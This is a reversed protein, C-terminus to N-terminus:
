AMNTTTTRQRIVSINSSMQGSSEADRKTGSAVSATLPMHSPQMLATQSQVSPSQLKVGAVHSLSQMMDINAHIPPAVSAAPHSNFHMSPHFAAVPAHTVNGPAPIYAHGYNDLLSPGTTTVHQLQSPASVFTQNNLDVQNKKIAKSMNEFETWLQNIKRNSDAVVEALKRGYETETNSLCQRLAVIEERLCDVDDKSQQDSKTARKIGQLLTPKDKQFKAHYFRVYSATRADFDATLIPEAKLKRFGYFNLQRAFSSFNSHKFYQPLVCSAFKEANKVVFNDGTVSQQSVDAIPAAKLQSM